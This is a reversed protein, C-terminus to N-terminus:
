RIKAMRTSLNRKRRPGHFFHHHSSSSQLQEVCRVPKQHKLFTTKPPAKRRLVGLVFANQLSIISNSIFRAQSHVFPTALVFRPLVCPRLESTWVHPSSRLLYLM